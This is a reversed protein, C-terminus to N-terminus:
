VHYRKLVQHVNDPTLQAFLMDPDRGISDPSVASLPFTELQTRIEEPFRWDLFRAPNGGFIAFPPVDSDVVSGPTICAGMGIHVGELIHVDKSVRVAKELIIPHNGCEFHVGDELRVYDDIILATSANDKAHLYLKGSAYRGSKIALLSFINAPCLSNFPYYTKWKKQFLTLKSFCVKKIFACAKKRAVRLFSLWFEPLLYYERMYPMYGTKVFRYHGDADFYYRVIHRLSRVKERRLAANSVGCERLIGIYNDGFVKAFNYGGKTTPWVAHFFNDRILVANKKQAMLRLFVDTQAFSRSSFRSFDSLNDFDEKWIGFSNTSCIYYSTADIFADLSYVETISPASKTEKFFLLPKEDQWRLVYKYMRELMGPEFWATDNCLKLFKGVGLSLAMEFNKDSLDKDNRRYVIKDGHVDQFRRVVIATDDTSANDSICIEISDTDQFIRQSTLYDLTKELYWARNLTPICISLLINKKM